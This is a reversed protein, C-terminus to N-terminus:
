RPITSSYQVLIGGLGDCYLSYMWKVGEKQYAFMKDWTRNDVLTGFDTTILNEGSAQDGNSASNSSSSSSSSNSSSSSSQGRSVDIDAAQNRRRRKQSSDSATDGGFHTTLRSEFVLDSWDDENVDGVRVASRSRNSDREFRVDSDDKDEDEGEDLAAVAGDSETYVSGDSIVETPTMDPDEGIEDIISSVSRGGSKLGNNRGERGDTRSSPAASLRSSKTSRTSMQEFFQIGRNGKKTTFNPFSLV